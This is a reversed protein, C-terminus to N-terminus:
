LKAERQERYFEEVVGAFQGAQEASLEQGTMQSFFAGFLEAETLRRHDGSPKQLKGGSMVAPREIHLINPYISELRGRADLIPELDQLTVMVYDDQPGGAPPGQLIDNFYGELCRVDRRPKLSVMEVSAAGQENLEVLQIGKSQGAEAFSYKLLSGSYRINDAGAQQPQHLHGLATYHFPKFLAASVASSGGVSLPRESESEAGGAIFAHAIAVKRGRQPIKALTHDILAKLAQEHDAVAIDLRERVLAPEAYTLPAFYVPGSKDNLVIPELQGPLAGVVHLGQRALLKNGFGLREPSDHNGAIMVVPTRYDLLIKSLVDDLLEVAETPPVARDYIDGAIVVADPKAEGVFAVFQDLIYAQDDTLHLGHFIRGLHWDSTHIFRM